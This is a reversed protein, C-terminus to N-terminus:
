NNDTIQQAVEDGPKIGIKIKKCFTVFSVFPFVKNDENGETFNNRLGILESIIIGFCIFPFNSARFGFISVGTFRFFIFTECPLCISILFPLPILTM